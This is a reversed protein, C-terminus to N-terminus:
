GNSGLGILILGFIISSIGLGQKLTVSEKLLKIAFLLVFAPYISSVSVVLSVKGYDFALYFFFVGILHIVLGVFSPLFQRHFIKPFKRNKRDILYNIFSITNSVPVLFFMHSFSGIEIISLKSLFDGTGILVAGSFGWLIWTIDGKTEETNRKPLTVFISGFLICVIGM